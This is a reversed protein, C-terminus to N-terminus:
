RVYIRRVSARGPRNKLACKCGNIVLVAEEFFWHCKYRRLFSFEINIEDVGDTM